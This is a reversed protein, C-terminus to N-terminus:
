QRSDKTHWKMLVDTELNIKSGVRWYKINTNNETFPTIGIRIINKNLTQITLSIGDLAVSGKEVAFKVFEVPISLEIINNRKATLKALGDIHGYVIHGGLRDILRLARELNVYDGKRLLGLNTAKLTANMILTSFTDGNVKNLTLCVGNVAISEGVKSGNAVKPAQIQMLIGDSQRTINGIRGLEEIIGTFM